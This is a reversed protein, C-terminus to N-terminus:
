NEDRGVPNGREVVDQGLGNRELPLHEVLRGRVEEIGCLVENGVVDEGHRIGIHSDGLLARGDRNLEDDPAIQGSV